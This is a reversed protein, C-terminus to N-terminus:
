GLLVSVISILQPLLPHILYASTSLSHDTLMLHITSVVSVVSLCASYFYLLQLITILPLHILPLLLHTTLHPWHPMFSIDYLCTVMQSEKHASTFNYFTSIIQCFLSDKYQDTIAFLNHSMDDIENKM